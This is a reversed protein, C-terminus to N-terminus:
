TGTAGPAGPDPLRRLVEAVSERLAALGEGQQRQGEALVAQGEAVSERLAVLQEGQQRQGEALVAQGEALTSQGEALDALRLSHDAVTRRIERVDHHLISLGYAVADIKQPLVHRVTTELDPDPVPEASV